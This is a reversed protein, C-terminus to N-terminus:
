GQGMLDDEADDVSLGRAELEDVRARGQHELLLMLLVEVRKVRPSGGEGLTTAIFHCIATIDQPAEPHGETLQFIMRVNRARFYLEVASKLESDPLRGVGPAAKEAYSTLWVGRAEGLKSLAVIKPNTRAKVVVPFGEVLGSARPRSRGLKPGAKRAAYGTGGAIVSVTGLLAAAQRPDAAALKETLGFSGARQSFFLVAGAVYALLLDWAIAAAVHRKLTKLPAPSMAAACEAFTVWAPVLGTVGIALGYLVLTRSSTM